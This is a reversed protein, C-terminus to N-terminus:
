NIRFDSLKKVKDSVKIDGLIKGFEGIIIMNESSINGIYICDIRLSERTSLSGEIKLDHGLYGTILKM